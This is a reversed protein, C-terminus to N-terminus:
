EGQVTAYIPIRGHCFPSAGPNTQRNRGRLGGVSEGDGTTKPCGLGLPLPPDRVVRYFVQQVYFIVGPKLLAFGLDVRLFERLPHRELRDRNLSVTRKLKPVSVALQKPTM